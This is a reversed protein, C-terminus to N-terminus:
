ELWDPLLGKTKLWQIRIGMPMGEVPNLVQFGDAQLWAALYRVYPEGALFVVRDGPVLKERLDGRNPKWFQELERRNKPLRQDYSEVPREPEIIGHKASLIFWASAHREAVARAAEFLIGTYVDKAPHTGARKKSGCGVLVVTRPQKEAV